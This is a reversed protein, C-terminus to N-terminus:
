IKNKSTIYHKFVRLEGEGITVLEVHNDNDIDETLLSLPARLLKKYWLLKGESSYIRLLKDLCGIIIEQKGDNNIDRVDMASIWRKFEDEWLKTNDRFVTIRKWYKTVRELKGDGDIDAKIETKPERLFLKKDRNFIRVSGEWDSGIIEIRGDNNIDSASIHIIESSFKESEIIKGEIDIISLSGIEGGLIIDKSGDGTFDAVKMIRLPERLPYLSKKKESKRDLLVVSGDKMALAILYNSDIDIIKLDNPAYDRPYRKVWIKRGENNLLIVLGGATVVAIEQKGDANVDAIDFSVIYDLLDASWLTEGKYNIAALIGDARGIIIEEKGDNDLDKVRLKTLISGIESRLELEETKKLERIEKRANIERSWILKDMKFLNIQFVSAYIKEVINDSDIDSHVGLDADIFVEDLSLTGTHDM